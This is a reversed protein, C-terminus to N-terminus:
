SSDDSQFASGQPTSGDDADCPVLRGDGRDSGEPRRRSRERRISPRQLALPAGCKRRLVEVQVRPVCSPRRWRAKPHRRLGETHRETGNMESCDIQPERCTGTPNQDQEKQETNWFTAETGM